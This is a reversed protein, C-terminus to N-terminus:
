LPLTISGGTITPVKKVHVFKLNRTLLMAPGEATKVTISKGGGNTILEFAANAEEETDFPLELPKEASGYGGKEGEYAILVMYEAM